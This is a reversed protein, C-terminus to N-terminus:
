DNIKVKIHTKHIETTSFSKFNEMAFMNLYINLKNNFYEVLENLLESTIPYDAPIDYNKIDLFNKHIKFESINNLNIFDTIVIRKDLLDYTSFPDISNNNNSFCLPIVPLGTRRSMIMSTNNIIRCDQIAGSSRTIKYMKKMDFDTIDYPICNHNIMYQINLCDLLIKSSNHYMICGGPINVFNECGVIHSEVVNLEMNDDDDNYEYFKNTFQDVNLRLSSFNSQCIVTDIQELIDDINKFILTDNNVGVAEEALKSLVVKKDGNEKQIETIGGVLYNRFNNSM